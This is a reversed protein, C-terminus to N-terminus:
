LYKDIIVLYVRRFINPSHFCDNSIFLNYDYTQQTFLFILKFELYVFLDKFNM